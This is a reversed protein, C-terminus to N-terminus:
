PLTETSFFHVRGTVGGVGPAGAVWDPHGDFRTSATPAMAGSPGTPAMLPTGLDYGGILTAGLFQNQMTGPVFFFPAFDRTSYLMVAGADQSAVELTYTPASIAVDPYGDRDVDGVNAIAAGFKSAPGLANITGLLAGDLGSVIWVIGTHSAGLATFGPGGLLLDAFRDGNQDPIVAISAGYNAETANSTIESVTALGHWTGRCTVVRGAKTAAGNDLAPAGMMIENVGDGDLDGAALTRGFEGGASPPIPPSDPGAFALRDDLSFAPPMFLTEWHFTIFEVRGNYYTGTDGKPAGVALTVKGIYRDFFRGLFALSAGFQEDPMTAEIEAIPAIPAGSYIFVVGYFGLGALFKCNPAGIAFDSIGDGTLDGISVVASGFAAFPGCLPPSNVTAVLERTRGSLIQVRGAGAGGKQDGIAIESYLDGDLDGIFAMARGFSDGLGTQEADAHQVNMVKVTASLTRDKADSAILTANAAFGRTTLTGDILTGSNPSAFALRYDPTGGRAAYDRSDHSLVSSVFPILGLANGRFVQVRGGADAGPVGPTANAGVAFDGRGDNDFDGGAVSIGFAGNPFQGFRDYLKRPIEESNRYGYVAASGVKNGDSALAQPTGVILSVLDTDRLRSTVALAAGFLDGASTGSLAIGSLKDPPNPADEGVATFFLVAGPNGEDPVGVAFEVFDDGDSDGLIAFSSGLGLAVTDSAGSLVLTGPLSSRDLSAVYIRGAGPEGILFGGCAKLGCATKQFSAGGALAQGFTTDTSAAPSLSGFHEFTRGSFFHVRGREGSGKRGPTGVAFDFYGDGNLDSGGAVAAGFEHNPADVEPFVLPVRIRRLKRGDKGSIVFVVDGGPAGILVDQIGDNDLDPIVAIASGALAGLENSSEHLRAARPSGSSGLRFEIGGFDPITSGASSGSSLVQELKPAGIVLDTWGDGDLDGAALASGFSGEFQTGLYQRFTELQFTTTTVMETVNSYCAFVGPTPDQDEYAAVTFGWTLGQGLGDIRVSTAGSLGSPGTVGEAGIPLEYSKIQYGQAGSVSTWSVFAEGYEGTAEVGSPVPLEPSALIPASFQHNGVEDVAAISVSYQGCNKLGTVDRTYSTALPNSPEPPASVSGGTSPLPNVRLFYEQVDTASSASWVLELEHNGATIADFDLTPPATTDLTIAPSSTLSSIQGAADKLCVKVTQASEGETLVYSLPFLGAGGTLGQYTANSCDLSSPGISVYRPSPETTTFSVRVNPFKALTTSLTCGSYVGDNLCNMGIRGEVTLGTLSPPGSDYTIEGTALPSVNGARDRVCTYITQLGNVAVLSTSKPNIYAGYSGSSPPCVSPGTPGTPGSVFVYLGNTPDVDASSTLALDVTTSYAYDAGEDITFTVWPEETDLTITDSGSGRLGAADKLCVTYSKLGDPPSLPVNTLTMSPGTFPTTYTVTDCDIAEGHAIYAADTPGTVGIQVSESTTYQAGAAISVSVSPPLRDLKIDDSTYTATLTRGSADRFQVYVTKTGDSPPDKLTWIKTSSFTEYTAGLFNSENSVMMEVVGSGTEGDSADLSLLVQEDTTYTEGGNIAVSGTPDAKDLFIKDELLRPNGAADKVCLYVTQEGESDAVDWNGSLFTDYNATACDPASNALHYHTISENAGTVAVTVTRDKTYAAGSDLVLTASPASTDLYITGSADVTNGAADRFRGYVIKEGDGDSLTFAVSSVIGTFGPAGTFNPNQSLTYQVAPTESVVNMLVTVGTSTTTDGQQFAFSTVSPPTRDLKIGDSLAPTTINGADDKFQVYLTKDGDDGELTVPLLVPGVSIAIWPSTDLNTSTGYRVAVADDSDLSLFVDESTTYPDNDNISFSTGTPPTPDYVIDDTALASVHGARDRVCVSVTHQGGTAVLTTDKPNSFPGYSAELLPCTSPGSPGTPGSVFVYLGNTPDVDDSASLGLSVSTSFAYDAGGDISFSVNPPTTDLTITDTGSARLGANDQLCVTYIKVGDPPSLTVNLPAGPTFTTYTANACDINEGRAILAADTPGTVGVLVADTTTYEAGGAISVAVSPATRDLTITDSEFTNTLTRGAADRYKVYVTKEGDVTPDKLTWIKTSSFPEYSAGPFNSDNSVMMEAVGSGAAGDAASLTLLVQSDTTYGAGGNISITGTPNQTDLVIKAFLPRSNGAADKICLYVTREGEGGTLNISGPLTPQYTIAGSTCDPETGTEVLYYWSITESAGTLTVLVSADQTYDAGGDFLLTANPATGDLYITASTDVTNGAIDRFRGYVTKDGDGSSLTFPASATVGTFGPAGSFTPNSSLTYEVPTSEGVVTMNITVATTKTLSGQAFTFSSVSPPTRDLKIDDSAPSTMNDARDKFQVWLFKDGDDGQLVAPLSVAGATISIWAAADLNSSTGYRAAVADVSNLTLEVFPTSTYTDGGNISFSTGQPLTKDYTIEDDIVICNRARDCLQVYITHPTESTPIPHGFVVETFNRETDDTFDADDNSITMWRVGSTADAVSFSLTVSSQNTFEAGGNISLSGTPLQQDLVVTTSFPGSIVSDINYWVFITHPGDTQDVLTYDVGLTDFAEWSMSPPTSSESAFYQKSTGPVDDFGLLLAPSNVYDRDDAVACPADTSLCVRFAGTQKGLTLDYMNVPVSEVNIEKQPYAAQQFGEKSATFTWTGLPLSPIAWAGTADTVTSTYPTATGSTEVATIVVGEATAADLSITGSVTGSRAVSLTFVGLEQSVGPLVTVNYEHGTSYDEKSFTLTYGIGNPLSPFEFYGDDMTNYPVIGPLPISDHSVGVTVGAYNVEGELRVFGSLGGSTDLEITDCSEDTANGAADFFRACVMRTGDAGPALEYTAAEALPIRPASASLGESNALAVFLPEMDRDGSVKFSLAVTTTGVELADNEITIAPSTTTPVKTDLYLTVRSEASVNGARDIWVFVIEREGDTSGLSQALDLAVVTSVSTTALAPETDLTGDIALRYSEIGSLEDLGGALIPVLSTTVFEVGSGVVFQSVIPPGRDLTIEGSFVDTTHGSSDRFQAYVRQLGDQDALELPRTAAFDVFDVDGQAADLFSPDLSVRMHTLNEVFALLLVDVQRDATFKAGTVGGSRLQVIASAPYLTVDPVTAVQGGSVTIMDGPSGPVYDELSVRVEYRGAALGDLRYEGSAGCLTVGATGEGGERILVVQAGMAPTTERAAGQLHALGRVTGRLITLFLDGLDYSDGPLLSIGSVPTGIYGPLKVTLSYIGAPAEILFTGDALPRTDLRRQASEGERAGVIAIEAAEPNQNDELVLRGTLQAVRQLEPPSDPDLPNTRPLKLSCASCACLAIVALRNLM